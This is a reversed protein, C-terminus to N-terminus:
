RSFRSQIGCEAVRWSWQALVTRLAHEDCKILNLARSNRYLTTSLYINYTKM